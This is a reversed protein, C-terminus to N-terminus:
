KTKEVWKTMKHQEANFYSIANIQYNPEATLVYDIKEEAESYKQITYQVAGHNYIYKGIKGEIEQDALKGEIDKVTNMLYYGNRYQAKTEELIKKKTIYFETMGAFFVMFLLFVCFTVPYIFGSERRIM